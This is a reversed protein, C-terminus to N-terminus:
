MRTTTISKDAAVATSAARNPDEGVASARATPNREVGFAYHAM